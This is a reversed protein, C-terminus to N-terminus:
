TIIKLSIEQLVFYNCFEADSPLNLCCFAIFVVYATEDSSFQDM